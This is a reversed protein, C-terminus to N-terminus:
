KEVPLVMKINNQAVWRWTARRNLIIRSQFNVSEGLIKVKAEDAWENLKDWAENGVRYLEQICDAFAQVIAIRTEDGETSHGKHEEMPMASPLIGGIREIQEKM